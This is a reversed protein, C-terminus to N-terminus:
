FEYPLLKDLYEEGVAGTAVLERIVANTAFAQNFGYISILKKGDDDLLRELIDLIETDIRMTKPNFVRKKKKPKTTITFKPTEQPAVVQAQNTLGNSVDGEESKDKIQSATTEVQKKQLAKDTTDPQTSANNRANNDSVEHKQVDNDKPLTPIEELGVVEIEEGFASELLSLDKDKQKKPKINEFYASRGLGNIEKKTM